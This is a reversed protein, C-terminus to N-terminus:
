RFILVLLAIAFLFNWFGFHPLIFSYIYAVIVFPGVALLIILVSTATAALMWGISKVIYIIDEKTM